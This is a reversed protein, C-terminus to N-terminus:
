EIKFHESDNFILKALEHDKNLKSYMKNLIMSSLSGVRDDDDERMCADGLTDIVEKHTIPFELTNRVM